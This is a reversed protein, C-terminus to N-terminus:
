RRRPKTAPALEIGFVSALKGEDLRRSKGRTTTPLTPAAAILEAQDVQRLLFFLEPRTDLRAGVGYLTAAIHKCMGAFDPCSCAMAIERPAPFLGHDKRTLLTLVDDGLEGRLLGILSGIKGACEAVLARWRQAPLRAIDIAVTYLESGAVFAKVQGALIELDVVSGNRVYSRGRPLRNAFDSYRELNENWAQGWFTHAIKKGDIEVPAPPRGWKRALKAVELKARAKRAAVPV